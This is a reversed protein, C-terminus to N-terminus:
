VAGGGLGMLKPPEAVPIPKVAFQVKWHNTIDVGRLSRELRVFPKVAHFLEDIRTVGCGFASRQDNNESKDHKSTAQAKRIESASGGVPLKGLRTVVIGGRIQEGAACEIDGNTIELLLDGSIM